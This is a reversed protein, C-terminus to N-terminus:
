LIGLELKAAESLMNQNWPPDFVLNVYATEIGEVRKAAMEVSEVLYGAVPCGMNTLTMIIDVHQGKQKIDYILGLDYINVPIEPEHVQKLAEIIKDKSM